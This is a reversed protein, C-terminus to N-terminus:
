AAPKRKQQPFLVTLQGWLVKRAEWKKIRAIVKGRYQYEEYTLKERKMLRIYTRVSREYERETEIERRKNM